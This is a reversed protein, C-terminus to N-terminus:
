PKSESEDTNPREVLRARWSKWPPDSFEPPSIGEGLLEPMDHRRHRRKKSGRYKRLVFGGAIGVGALIGGNMLAPTYDTKWEARVTKPSDMTISAKETNAASDGNWKDFAIKTWFGSQNPPEIAGINAISGEDYWGSGSVSGGDLTSSASLYYQPKWKAIVTAPETVRVQGAGSQTSTLVGKGTWADFVLRDSNQKTVLETPAVSITAVSGEKHFGGGVPSGYQSQVNLYYGKKWLAAIKYPHDIILTSYDGEDQLVAPYTGLNAWGDFIYKMDERDSDVERDFTLTVKQGEYYWGTGPVVGGELLSSVDLYYQDYWTARVTTPGQIILSNTPSVRSDGRDWSGFSYRHGEIEENVVIAPKVGFAARQGKEYWRDGYVEGRDSIVNLRYEEKFIARLNINDSVVFSRDPTESLDTWRQFVFRKELNEEVETEEIIIRHISGKTWSFTLPLENPLYLMGDVIITSMRPLLDITVTKTEIAEAKQPWQNILVSLCLLLILVAPLSFSLL